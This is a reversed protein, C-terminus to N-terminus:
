SSAEEQRAKRAEELVRAMAEELSLGGAQLQALRKQGARSRRFLPSGDEGVGVLEILGALQLENYSEALMGDYEAQSLHDFSHDVQQTM